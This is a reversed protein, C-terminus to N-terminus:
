DGRGIAIMRELPQRAKQLIDDTLTVTPKLAEVSNLIKELTIRKM